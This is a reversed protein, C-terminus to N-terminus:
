HRFGQQNAGNMFRSPLISKSVTIDKSLSESCMSMYCLMLQHFEKQRCCMDRDWCGERAKCGAGLAFM